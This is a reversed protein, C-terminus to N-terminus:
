VTVTGVPVWSYSPVGNTVICNLAYQGDNSPAPPLNAANVNGSFVTDGNAYVVMANSRTIFQEDKWDRGDKTSYGNGVIFLAKNSQSPDDASTLRDPGDVPQNYKGIVTQWQRSKLQCGIAVGNHGEVINGNGMAITNSGFSVRNDNGQVFGNGIAWLKSGSPGGDCHVSNSKGLITFANVRSSILNDSGSVFCETINYDTDFSGIQNKSGFISNDAVQSGRIANFCGFITNRANEFTYDADPTYTVSNQSGFITTFSNAGNRTSMREATSAVTNQDGSIFFKEACQITNKGGFVRGEAVHTASNDGFNFIRLADSIQAGYESDSIIVSNISDSVNAGVVINDTCPQLRSGAWWTEVDTNVLKANNLLINNIVCGGDGQDHTSEIQSDNLVINNIFTKAKGIISGHIVINKIITEAGTINMIPDPNNGSGHKQGILINRHFAHSANAVISSPHSIINDIIANTCTIKLQNSGHQSGLIINGTVAYGATLEVKTNNEHGAGGYIFNETVSKTNTVLDVDLLVNQMYGGTPQTTHESLSNFMLNHTAANLKNINGSAGGDWPVILTSEGLLVNATGRVKSDFAAFNRYGEAESHQLAVNEGGIAKSLYGFAMDYNRGVVNRYGVAIMFGDDDTTHYTADPQVQPTQSENLAGILISNYHNSKNNNGVIFSNCVVDEDIIEYHGESSTDIKRRIQRLLNSLSYSNSEYINYQEETLKGQIPEGEYSASQQLKMFPGNMETHNNLCSTLEEKSNTNRLEQIFANTVSSDYKSALEFISLYRAKMAEWDDFPPTGSFIDVATAKDDATLNYPPLTKFQNSINNIEQSPSPYNDTRGLGWDEYQAYYSDFLALESSTLGTALANHVATRYQSVQSLEIETPEYPVGPIFDGQFEKHIVEQDSTSTNFQGIMTAHGGYGEYSTNNVGLAISWGHVNNRSGISVAERSATNDLGFSINYGGEMSTNGEGIAIGHCDSFSANDAGNRIGIAVNEGRATNDRGMTVAYQSSRNTDGIAVSRNDSHNWRGMALAYYEVYNSEGVSVSDNKATSWRGVGFSIDYVEISDGIATSGDYAKTNIGISTSYDFASAYNGLAISSHYAKSNYGFVSSYTEANNGDGIALSYDRAQNSNTGIALSYGSATNSNTGIAFSYGTAFNSNQGIAFSDNYADNTKRGISLSNRDAYVGDTGIATSHGYARLSQNGLAFSHGTATISEIGIAASYGNASIDNYYIDYELIAPLGNSYAQLRNGISVTSSSGMVNYNPAIAFSCGEAHANAGIAIGKNYGGSATLKNWTDTGYGLMAGTWYDYVDFTCSSLPIWNDYTLGTTPYNFGDAYVYVQENQTFTRPKIELYEKLNKLNGLENDTKEAVFRVFSYASGNKIRWYEESSTNFANRIDTRDVSTVEAGNKYLYVTSNSHYYGSDIGLVAYDYTTGNYSVNRFVRVHDISYGSKVRISGRVPVFVNDPNKYKVISGSAIRDRSAQNGGTTGISIGASEATMGRGFTFAGSRAVSQAGVSTSGSEAQNSFGLAMSGSRASNGNRGISISGSYASIGGTGFAASGDEASISDLGVTISANKASIGDTGIATAQGEASVGNRGYVVSGRTASIGSAGVAISGRGTTVGSRGVTVSGPSPAISMGFAVLGGDYEDNISGGDNDSDGIKVSIDRGVLTSGGVQATLNAGVLVSNNDGEINTGFGFSNDTLKLGNGIGVSAGSLYNNYSSSPGTNVIAISNGMVTRSPSSASWSVDDVKSNFWVRNYTIWDSQAVSGDVQSITLTKYSTDTYGIWGNADSAKEYMVQPYPTGIGIGFSSTDAEMSKGIAISDNRSITQPTEYGVVAPDLESAHLEDAPITEWAFANSKYKTVDNYPIFNNNDDRYGYVSYQTYFPRSTGSYYCKMAPASLDATYVNINTYTADSISLKSLWEAYESANLVTGYDPQTESKKFYGSVSVTTGNERSCYFDVPVGNVSTIHSYEKINYSPDTSSIFNGNSDFYGTVRGSSASNGGVLYTHLAQNEYLTVRTSFEGIEGWEYTNSATKFVSAIDYYTYETLDLKIKQAPIEEGDVTMSLMPLTRSKASPKGHGISISGSYSDVDEGIAISADTAQNRQGVTVGFTSSVNDKGINVGEGTISNNRGLNMAMSHPYQEKNALNNGTVTNERGLQYTNAADTATNESGIEVVDTNTYDTEDTVSVTNGKGLVYTEDRNAINNVGLYVSEGEGTSGRNESWRKWSNADDSTGGICEWNGVGDVPQNWIWEKYSDPQSAGDVKVIYIVKTSPRPEDPHNDDGTGPVKKYSTIKKLAEDINVGSETETARKSLIDYGLRIKKSM